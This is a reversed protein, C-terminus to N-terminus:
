LAMSRSSRTSNSLNGRGAAMEMNVRFENQSSSLLTLCQEGDFFRILRHIGEYGIGPRLEAVLGSDVFLGVQILFLQGLQM